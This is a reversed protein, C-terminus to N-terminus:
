KGVFMHSTCALSNTHTRWHTRWKHYTDRTKVLVVNVIVLVVNVIVLVVNVIVLVVNVIVLM